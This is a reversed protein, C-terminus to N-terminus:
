MTTYFNRVNNPTTGGDSSTRMERAYEYQSRYSNNINDDVMQVCAPACFYDEEQIFLNM